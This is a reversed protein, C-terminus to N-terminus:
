VDVNEWGSVAMHADLDVADVDEVGAGALHAAVAGLADGAPEDVGVVVLLAEEDPLGVEEAGAVRVLRQLRRELGLDVLSGPLREVAVGRARERLRARSPDGDLHDVM